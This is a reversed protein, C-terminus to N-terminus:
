DRRRWGYALWLHLTYAIVLAAAVAGIVDRLDIEGRVQRTIALGLVLLGLTWVLSKHIEPYVLLAPRERLLHSTGGGVFAPQRRIIAAAGLALGLLTLIIVGWESVTPVSAVSICKACTAGIVNGSTEAAADTASGVGRYHKGVTCAILNSEWSFANTQAFTKTNFVESIEPTTLNTCQTATDFKAVRFDFQNMNSNVDTASMSVTLLGGSITNITVDGAAVVPPASIAPGAVASGVLGIM